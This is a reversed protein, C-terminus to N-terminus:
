TGALMRLADRIGPAFGMVAVIILIFARDKADMKEKSLFYVIVTALSLKVLFFLFFGLPTATGIGSSLVHQEFYNKGTEKSFVDIVVFTAAGDLAQGAIALKEHLGLRINWFKQLLFFCAASGIGALLIAIAFHWWHSAFPLLFLACPLWLLLGACAAFCPKRMVIGSALSALFLAATVLYIGPTVTLYGYTFIGSAGIASYAQGLLGGWQAASAISGSDSLDTLVRCTSGFLVFAAVALLFDRSSFDFKAKQLLRWIAYLCALAIAAYALTNVANYGTREFIPNVFYERVFDQMTKKMDM